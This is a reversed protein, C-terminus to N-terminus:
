DLQKAQGSYRREVSVGERDNRHRGYMKLACRFPVVVPNVGNGLVVANGGQVVDLQSRTWRKLRHVLEASRATFLKLAELSCEWVAM